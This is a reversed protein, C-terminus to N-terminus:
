RQWLIQAAELPVAAAPHHPAVRPTYDVAPRTAPVRASYLYGHAAGVLPEGRVMEQQVPADGDRGDAYLAPSEAAQRRAHCLM